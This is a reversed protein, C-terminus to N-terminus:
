RTVDDPEETDATANDDPTADTIDDAIVADPGSREPDSTGSEEASEVYRLVAPDFPGGADELLTDASL